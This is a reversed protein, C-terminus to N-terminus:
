LGTLFSHRVSLKGVAATLMIASDLLWCALNVQYGNARWIDEATLANTSCIGSLLGIHMSCEALVVWTSASRMSLYSLIEYHAAAAPSVQLLNLFEFTEMGFGFSADIVLLVLDAFKAADIM